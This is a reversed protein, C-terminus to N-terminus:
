YDERNNIQRLRTQLGEPMTLLEGILRQVEEGPIAAVDLKSRAAEQRFEPDDLTKAFAQRLADAREPPM